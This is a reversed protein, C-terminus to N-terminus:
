NGGTEARRRCLAQLKRHLTMRQVILRAVADGIRAAHRQAEQANWKPALALRQLAFREDVIEQREALSSLRAQRLLARMQTRQRASLSALGPRHPGWGSRGSRDHDAHPACAYPAYGCGSLAEPSAALASGALGLTSALTLIWGITRPTSM